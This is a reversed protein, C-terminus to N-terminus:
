REYKFTPTKSFPLHCGAIEFVLQTSYEILRASIYIQRLQFCYEENLHQHFHPKKAQVSHLPHQLRLLALCQLLVM